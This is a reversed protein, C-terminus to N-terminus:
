IPEMAWGEEVGVEELDDRDMADGWSYQSEVDDWAEETAETEEWEM